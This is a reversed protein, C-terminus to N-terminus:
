RRPGAVIRSVIPSSAIVSLVDIMPGPAFRSVISALPLSGVGSTRVVAVAAPHEVDVVAVVRVQEVNRDAAQREGAAVHRRAASRDRLRSFRVTVSLVILPLEAPM